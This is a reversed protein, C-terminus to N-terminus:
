LHLSPIPVLFNGGAAGAGWRIVEMDDLFCFIEGRGHKLAWKPSSPDVSLSRPTLSGSGQSAWLKLFCSTVSPIDIPLIPLGNPPHSPTLMTTM